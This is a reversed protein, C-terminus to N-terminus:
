GYRDAIDGKAISLCVNVAKVVKSVDTRLLLLTNAIWLVDNSETVSAVLVSSSTKM